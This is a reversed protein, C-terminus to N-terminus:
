SRGTRLLCRRIAPTGFLVGMVVTWALLMTAPDGAVPLTFLLVGWVAVAAIFVTVVIRLARM